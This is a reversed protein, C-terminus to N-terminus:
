QNAILRVIDGIISLAQTVTIGNDEAIVYAAQTLTSHQALTNDKLQPM